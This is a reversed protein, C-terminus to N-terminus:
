QRDAPLSAWIADIHAMFENPDTELYKRVFQDYTMGCRTEEPQETQEARFQAENKNQM